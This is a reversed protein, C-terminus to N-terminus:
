VRPLTVVFTSGEGQVSSAVVEGSMGRALTRSVALGLGVGDSHRTLGKEIQFFPEFIDGLKDEPIGKGSDRVHIDIVPSGDSHQGDCCTVSVTSGPHSFKVGNSILNVLIQLLKEPDGRAVGSSAKDFSSELKVGKAKAKPETLVFAEDVISRLSIDHLDYLLRGSEIQTYSLLDDIMSLLHRESKQIKQLQSRQSETLPGEIEMDLLDAYGRIANLPTRLEHSMVALFDSKARNAKEAAERAEIAVSSSREADILAEARTRESRRMARATWMLVVIFVVVTAVVFLSVGLERSVIDARRAELWLLGFLIPLVVCAAFLRRTVLASSENGVLLSAAGEGPRAMLVGTAVLLFGIVTIPAMGAYSDLSYLSSVGYIHGLVAIFAILLAAASVTERLSSLKDATLLLLGAGLLTFCVASNTAMLGLPRYPFLPLVGPFLLRDISWEAGTFRQLAMVVGIALVLAGLSREIVLAATTYDTRAKRAHDIWLAAGAFAFGTATWPLMLIAGPIGSKLIDSGTAWGTLVMIGLLM